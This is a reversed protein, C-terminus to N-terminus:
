LPLVTKGYVDGYFVLFFLHQYLNHIKNKNENAKDGGVRKVKIKILDGTYKYVNVRPVKTSSKNKEAKSKNKLSSFLKSTLSENLM